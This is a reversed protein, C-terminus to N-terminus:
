DIANSFDTSSIMEIGGSCIVENSVLSLLNNNLEIEGVRM